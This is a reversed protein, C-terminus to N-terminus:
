PRAEIIKQFTINDVTGTPFLGQQEQFILIAKQTQEKFIGDLPIEYGLAALKQQLLYVLQGTDDMKLQVPSTGVTQLFRYSKTSLGEVEMRRIDHNDFGEDKLRKSNRLIGELRETEAKMLMYRRVLLDAEPEDEQPYMVDIRESSWVSRAFQGIEQAKEYYQSLVSQNHYNVDIDDSIVYDYTSPAKFRQHERFKSYGYILLFAVLGFAFIRKM